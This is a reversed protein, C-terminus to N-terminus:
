DGLAVGERRPDSAGDMGEPTVRIVNLGSDLRRVEIEHGMRRLSKGIAVIATGEELETPGNRNLFHPLSVVSVAPLDWDLAAVLAQVVYGIIAGGGPSGAVLTLGENRDFVLTPAMSSLPRKGPEPRNAAPTDGERPRFDFDLLENNLLFGHVMVHSGFATNITTTMAVANGASDIISVQSTSHDPPPPASPAPRGPLGPAARGAQAKDPSILKSRAAIYDRALLEAVPADVFAPDGLYANRDAYALKEAEAILHVADVADAVMFPLGFPELMGLTELTTITGSSPLGMGCVRWSRYFGCVAPRKKAQYGALDGATLGGPNMRAAGVAAAIDDAMVGKYFADPGEDAIRELARALAPNRLITGIPKPTGDEQLFYAAAAPFRAMFRDSKLEEYLRPTIAFGREALAIAPQFLTKWPLKGHERHALALMRVTGPVGVALGGAMVEPFRRPQGDPGLFLAETASKPATERGDYTDIKRTAHDYAVLFAGGGIGSSQPEVLTLVMQTAIAADVATGGERLIALGAEAALPSAAVIMQRRPLPSPPSPDACGALALILALPVGLAAVWGARARSGSM